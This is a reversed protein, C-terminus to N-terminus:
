KLYKKIKELVNMFYITLKVNLTGIFGSLFLKFDNTLYLLLGLFIMHLFYRRAYGFYAIKKAAKIDNTYAIAKSDLALLYFSLVSIICGGSMGLFLYKSQFILGILFCIITNIIVIKFIKKINEM